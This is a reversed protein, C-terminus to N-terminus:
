LQPTGEPYQRTKKTPDLQASQFMRNQANIMKDAAEGQAGGHGLATAPQMPSIMLGSLFLTLFSEYLNEAQALGSRAQVFTPSFYDLAGLTLIGAGYAWNRITDIFKGVENYLESVGVLQRMQVTQEDLTPALEFIHIHNTQEGQFEFLGFDEVFQKYLTEMNEKSEIIWSFPYVFLNALNYISKLSVHDGLYRKFLPDLIAFPMSTLVFTLGAAPDQMKHWAVELLEDNAISNFYNGNDAYVELAEPIVSDYANQLSALQESWFGQEVPEMDVQRKLLVGINNLCGKIANDFTIPQYLTGAQQHKKIEYQNNVAYLPQSLQIPGLINDLPSYLVTVKGVGKQADPFNYGYDLLQGKIIM